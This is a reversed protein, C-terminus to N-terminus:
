GRCRPNQNRKPLFLLMMMVMIWLMRVQKEEKMVAVEGM